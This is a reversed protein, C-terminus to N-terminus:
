DWRLAVPLSYVVFFNALRSPDGNVFALVRIDLGVSFYMSQGTALRVVPLNLDLGVGAHGEGAWQSFRHPCTATAEACPRAPEWKGAGGFGGGGYVYPDIFPLGATRIPRWLASMQGYVAGSEGPSPIVNQATLSFLFELRRGGVGLTFLDPHWAASGDGLPQGHVAVALPNVRVFVFRGSRPPPPAREEDKAEAPAPEQPVPHPTPRPVDPPPATSPLAVVEERTAPESSERPSIPVVVAKTEGSAADDARASPAQLAAALVLVFLSSRM